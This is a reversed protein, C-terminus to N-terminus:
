ATLHMKSFICYHVTNFRKAYGEVSHAGVGLGVLSFPLYFPLWEANDTLVRIHGGPILDKHCAVFFTMVNPLHELLNECRIATFRPTPNGLLFSIAEAKVVRSDEPFMDVCVM